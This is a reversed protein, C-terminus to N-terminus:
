CDPERLDIGSEAIAKYIGKIVRASDKRMYILAGMFASNWTASLPTLAPKAFFDAIEFATRELPTLPELQEPTPRTTPVSGEYELDM